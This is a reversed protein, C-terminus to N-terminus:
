HRTAHDWGKYVFAQESFDRLKLAFALALFAAGVELGREVLGGRTLAALGLFAVASGALALQAKQFQEYATSCTKCLLTHGHLRDMVVERAEPKLPLQTDIHPPYEVRGGLSFLVLINCYELIVLM